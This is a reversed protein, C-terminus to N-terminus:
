RTRHGRPAQVFSALFACAAGALSTLHLATSVQLAAVTGQLVLVFERRSASFGARAGRYRAIEAFHGMFTM